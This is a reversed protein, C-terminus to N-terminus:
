RPNIVYIVSFNRGEVFRALDAHFYITISNSFVGRGDFPINLLERVKSHAGDAGILYQASLRRERGSEVDRCTVTVGDDDQEVGVVDLGDAVQAGAKRRAPAPDARPRAPHRVAPSVPELADVGENLSPIFAAIQKGALSEVAVIAGEPMFEKESQARVEAEIGCSRFLEITRM